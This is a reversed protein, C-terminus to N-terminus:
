GAEQSWSACVSTGLLPQSQLHFLGGSMHVRRRMSFLGYGSVRRSVDFGVGDDVIRLTLRDGGRLEVRVYGAKAHKAINNMCEQLVRFVTNKRREPVTDEDAELDAFVRCNYIKEYDACFRRIGMILGADSLEVPSLRTSIRRVEDICGRIQHVFEQCVDKAQADLALQKILSEVGYKLASLRQGINDHLESAIRQREQEEAHFIENNQVLAKKVLNINNNM